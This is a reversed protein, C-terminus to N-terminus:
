FSNKRVLYSVDKFEQTELLYTLLNEASHFAVKSGAHGDFVAFFSWDKFVEGDGLGVKVRHADEMDTRWGQMSAVVYRFDSGVGDDNTKETKPKDLFAGM